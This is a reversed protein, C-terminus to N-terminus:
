KNVILTASCYRRGEAFLLLTHKDFKMQCDIAFLSVQSVYVVLPVSATIIQLCGNNHYVGPTTVVHAVDSPM